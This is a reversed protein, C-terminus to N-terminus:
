RKLDPTMAFSMRRILHHLAKDERRSMVHHRGSRTLDKVTNIQSKSVLRSVVTYHYGMQRGSAKFSNVTHRNNAM